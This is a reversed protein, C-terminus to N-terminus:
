LGVINDVLQQNIAIQDSRRLEAVVNQVYASFFENKKQETLRDYIQSKEEEFKEEDLASREAVQFVVYKESVIIPTSIDGVDLAFAEKHVNPSFRLNEDINSGKKFFGTSHVKLGAKKSVAAFSEAEVAEQRFSEAAEKALERKRTEAYDELVEARIEELEPLREAQVDKLQGAIYVGGMSYPETIEGQSLSFVEQVFDGGVGLGPIDSGSDFYDSESVSLSYEQAAEALGGKERATQVVEEALAAAQKESEKLRAQFEAALRRSEEDDGTKAIVKIIHYGFPTRVLDSVQGPELSFAAVEFEPVMRGRAFFGLDGGRIASTKDDSYRRAL